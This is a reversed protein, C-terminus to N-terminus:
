KQSAAQAVQFPMWVCYCGADPAPEDDQLLRVSTPPNSVANGNGDFIALNVCRDGWVHAVLAAQPQINEHAPKKEYFWVVRGVTPKIM